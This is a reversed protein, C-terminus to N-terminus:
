LMVSILMDLEMNTAIPFFGQIIPNFKIPQISIRIRILNLCIILM